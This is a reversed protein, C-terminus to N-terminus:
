MRSSTELVKPLIGFWKPIIVKSKNYGIDRVTYIDKIENLCQAIYIAYQNPTLQERVTNEFSVYSKRM